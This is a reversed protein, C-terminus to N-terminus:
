GPMEVEAGALIQQVVDLVDTVGFQGEGRHFMQVAGVRRQGDAGVSVPAHVYRV